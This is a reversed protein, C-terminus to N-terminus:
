GGGQERSTHENARNYTISDKVTSTVEELVDEIYSCLNVHHNEYAERSSLLFMATTKVLLKCTM